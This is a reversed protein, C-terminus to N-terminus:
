HKGAHAFTPTLEQAGQLINLSPYKARSILNELDPQLQNKQLHPNQRHQQESSNTPAEDWIKSCSLHPIEASLRLSKSTGPQTKIM